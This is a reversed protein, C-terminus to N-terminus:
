KRITVVAWRNVVGGILETVPGVAAKIDAIWHDAPRARRKMRMGNIFIPAPKTVVAFMAIRNALRVVDRVVAAVKDPEVTDLVDTCTVLDASPPEADYGDVAPDYGTVRRFPHQGLTAMLITVLTGKGCSYDLFTECGFSNALDVITDLWQDGGTGYSAVRAHIERLRALHEDSILADRIM